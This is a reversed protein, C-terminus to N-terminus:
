LDNKLESWPPLEFFGPLETWVKKRGTTTLIIAHNRCGDCLNKGQGAFTSLALLEFTKTNRRFLADRMRSCSSTGTCAFQADSEWSRLWGFTYGPQFQATILKERGWICRRLDVPTPSALLGNLLKDQFVSTLTPLPCRSFTSVLGQNIARYYAAPLASVIDNERALRLIDFLLRAPSRYTDSTNGGVILADFEELTTPNQGLCFRSSSRCHSAPQFLLCIIYCGCTTSALLTKFDVIPCGDVSPQDPAPAVRPISGSSVGTSAFNTNQAQLVVSGDKYWIDSRTISADETRARKAPPSSM